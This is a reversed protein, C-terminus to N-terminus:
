AAVIHDFTRCEESYGFQLVLDVIEVRSQRHETGLRQRLKLTCRNPVWGGANQRSKRALRLAAKRQWQELRHVQAVRVDGHWFSVSNDNNPRSRDFPAAECR